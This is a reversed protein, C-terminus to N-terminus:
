GLSRLDPPSGTDHPASLPTLGVNGGEQWDPFDREQWRAHELYEEAIAAILAERRMPDLHLLESIEINNERAFQIACRYGDIDELVPRLVEQNWLDALEELLSPREDKIAFM